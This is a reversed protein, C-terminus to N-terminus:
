ESIEAQVDASFDLVPGEGAVWSGAPWYYVTLTEDEWESIGEYDGERWVEPTL